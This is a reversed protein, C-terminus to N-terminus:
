YLLSRGSGMWNFDTWISKNRRFVFLECGKRGRGSMAGGTWMGHHTDFSDVVYGFMTALPSAVRGSDAEGDGSNRTQGICITDWHKTWYLYYTLAKETGYWTGYLITNMYVTTIFIQGSVVLFATPTQVAVARGWSSRVLRNENRTVEQVYRWTMCINWMVKFMITLNMDYNIYENTPFTLM